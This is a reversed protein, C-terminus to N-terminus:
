QTISIIVMFAPFHEFTKDLIAEDSTDSRQAEMNLMEMREAQSLARYKRENKPLVVNNALTGIKSSQEHVLSRWHHVVAEKTKDDRQRKSRKGM